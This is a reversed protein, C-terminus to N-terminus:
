IDLRTTIDWFANSTNRSRKHKTQFSVFRKKKFKIWPETWYWWKKSSAKVFSFDEVNLNDIDIHDILLKDWVKWEKRSAIILNSNDTSVESEKLKRLLYKFNNINTIVWGSLNNVSANNLWLQKIIVIQTLHAVNQYNNKIDDITQWPFYESLIDRFNQESLNFFRKYVDEFINTVQWNSVAVRKSKEIKLSLNIDWQNTSIHLDRAMNELYDLPSHRLWIVVKNWVYWEVLPIANKSAKEINKIEKNRDIKYNNNPFFKLYLAKWLDLKAITKGKDSLPINLNYHKKIEDFLILEFYTWLWDHFIWEIKEYLAKKQEAINLYNPILELVKEYKKDITLTHDSLILNLQRKIEEM